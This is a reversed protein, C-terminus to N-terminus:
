PIMKVHFPVLTQTVVKILLPKSIIFFNNNFFYLVLEVLM